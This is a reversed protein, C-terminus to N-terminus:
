VIITSLVCEGIDPSTDVKCTCSCIITLSNHVVYTALISTSSTYGQRWAGGLKEFHTEDHYLDATSHHIPITGKTHYLVWVGWFGMSCNKSSWSNLDKTDDYLQHLCLLKLASLCILNELLKSHTLGMLETFTWLSKLVKNVADVLPPIFWTSPYQAERGRWRSDKGVPTLSTILPPFWM